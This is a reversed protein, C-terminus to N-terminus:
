LGERETNSNLYFYDHNTYFTHVGDRESILLKYEKTISKYCLLSLSPVYGIEKQTSRM